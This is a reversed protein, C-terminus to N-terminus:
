RSAAAARVALAWAPETALVLATLSASLDTQAQTQILFGLASALM